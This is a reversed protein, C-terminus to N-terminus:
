QQEWKDSKAKRFLQAGGCESQLVKMEPISGEKAAPDLEVALERSSQGVNEKPPLGSDVTSFAFSGDAATFSKEIVRGTRLDLLEVATRLLPLPDDDLQESTVLRGSLARVPIKTSPWDLAFQQGSKEESVVKVEPESFLLGDEVSLMYRGPPSAFFDAVGRSDTQATAEVLADDPNNRAIGRRALILRAGTVPAERFSLKVSFDHGVPDNTFLWSGDCDLWKKGEREAQAHSFTTVMMVALLMLLSWSARGMPATRM